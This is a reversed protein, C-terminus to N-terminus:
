GSGATCRGSPVPGSPERLMTGLLQKIIGSETAGERAALDRVRTKVEQSVRCTIYANATVARHQSRFASVSWRLIQQMEGFVRSGWGGTDMCTPRRRARSQLKQAFAASIGGQLLPRM